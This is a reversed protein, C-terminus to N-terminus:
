ALGVIISIGQWHRTDKDLSGLNWILGLKSYGLECM